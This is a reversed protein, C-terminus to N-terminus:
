EVLVTMIAQSHHSVGKIGAILPCLHISRLTQPWGPGCVLTLGQGGLAFSCGYCGGEQAARISVLRPAVSLFQLGTAATQVKM